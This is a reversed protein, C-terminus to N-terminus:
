TLMPNAFQNCRLCWFPNITSDLIHTPFSESPKTYFRNAFFALTSMIPGGLIPSIVLM